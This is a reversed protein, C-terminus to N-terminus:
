GGYYGFGAATAYGAPQELDLAARAAVLAVAPPRGARLQEHVARM